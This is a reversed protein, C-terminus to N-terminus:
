MYFSVHLDNRALNPFPKLLPSKNRINLNMEIHNLTSPVGPNRRPVTIFLRGKYHEVGMPINNYPIYDPLTGGSNNNSTPFVIADAIDYRSIYFM